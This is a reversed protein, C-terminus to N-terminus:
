RIYTKIKRAVSNGLRETFVTSFKPCHIQVGTLISILHTSTHADLYKSPIGDQVLQNVIGKQLALTTKNVSKIEKNSIGSKRHASTFSKCIKRNTKSRFKLAQTSTWFTVARKLVPKAKGSESVFGLLKAKTLVSYRGFLNPETWILNPIKELAEVNRAAVYQGRQSGVWNALRNEEASVERTLSERQPYEGNVM